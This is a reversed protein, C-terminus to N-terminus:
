TSPSTAAESTTRHFEDGAIHAFLAKRRQCRLTIKHEIGGPRPDLVYERTMSEDGQELRHGIRGLLARVEGVPLYGLRRLIRDPFGVM